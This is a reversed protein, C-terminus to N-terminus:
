GKIRRYTNVLAMPLDSIQRTAVASSCGNCVAWMGGCDFTLVKAPRDACCSWGSGFTIGGIDMGTRPYEEVDSAM